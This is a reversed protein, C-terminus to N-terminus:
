EKIFKYANRFKEGAVNLYYFGPSLNELNILVNNDIVSQSNEFLLLGTSNYIQIKVHQEDLNEYILKVFDGAPNPYLEPEYSYGNIGIGTTTGLGIDTFTTNHAFNLLTDGTVESLDIRWAHDTPPIDYHDNGNLDAYFDINYNIGPVIAYSMVTFDAGILPNIIVSDIIAQNSQNRIYFAMLQGVHPTFGTYQVTLLYKWEIDTFNTNHAFPVITDGVLNDVTLRWAHDASPADYKGNKNHDAFLDVDYSNGPIVGEFVVNFNASTVNMKKREVEKNSGKDILALYLNQTLHPTMNSFAVTLAHPWDIDTFNTNHAFPVITDGVLTDVTLRWAHDVSPADYKGNKNHDAFFDINYSRGATVGGISVSFAATNVAKVVRGIESQNALDVVRLYLNQGLHPTM